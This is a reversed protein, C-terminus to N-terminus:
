THYDAPDPRPCAPSHHRDPDAVAAACRVAQDVRDGGSGVQARIRRGQGAPGPDQSRHRLADWQSQATRRGAEEGGARRPQAQPPDPRSRPPEPHARVPDAIQLGHLEVSAQRPHLDLKGVDVQTGLLETSAEETTDQAVPEAFILLLVIIIAFLFLLPGIAKWRFIKIGM